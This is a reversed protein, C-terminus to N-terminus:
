RGALLRQARRLERGAARVLREAEHIAMLVDDHETGRYRTVMDDLRAECDELQSNLSILMATDASSTM